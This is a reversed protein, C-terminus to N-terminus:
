GMAFEDLNTKGLILADEELLKEICTANYPAKYNELIKSGATCKEGKILINDKIALSVGALKGIKKGKKIKKDIKKSQELALNKTLCLYSSLEKDEKEIKNFYKETLESASFKDKKLGERIKKITLNKLNM